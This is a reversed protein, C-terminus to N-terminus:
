RLRGARVADSIREGEAAGRVLAEGAQALWLGV